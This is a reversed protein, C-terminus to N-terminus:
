FPKITIVGRLYRRPDQRIDALVASLDTVLKTLADYLAADNLLRAATGEGTTLSRVLSDAAGAMTAFRTTMLNLNSYITTDTVLRGLTGDSTRLTTILSDASRVSAVMQNYLTPDDLMRGLTGQSSQVRQLMATTRALAADMRDYLSRNMLLQGVTGRGAIISGTINRLDSALAVVDDIAGAARGLLAEYDMAPSLALTDGSQLQPYELSGPVINIVKDGLLGLTRVSGRSDRRVQDRVRTDVSLRLILNRTTDADVPLYDISKV